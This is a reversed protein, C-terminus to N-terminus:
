GSPLDPDAIRWPRHAACRLKPQAAVVLALVVRLWSRYSSQVPSAVLPVRLMGANRETTDTSTLKTLVKEVFELGARRAAAQPPRGRAPLSVVTVPSGAGGKVDPPVFHFERPDAGVPADQGTVADSVSM